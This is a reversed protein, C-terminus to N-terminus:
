ILRETPVAWGLFVQALLLFIVTAKM